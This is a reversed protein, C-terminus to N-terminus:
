AYPPASLPMSIGRSNHGHKRRSEATTGCKTSTTTVPRSGQMIPLRDAYSNGRDNTVSNKAIRARTRLSRSIIGEPITLYSHDASQAHADYHSFAKTCEDDESIYDDVNIIDDPDTIFMAECSTLGLIASLSLITLYKKM